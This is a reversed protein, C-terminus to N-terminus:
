PRSTTPSSGCPPGGPQKPRAPAAWPGTRARGLNVHAAAFDPRLRAAERFAAAAEDLRGCDLALLGLTNRPQALSPALALARRAADGAEEPRGLARLSEALNAHLRPSDPFRAAGDALLARAEDIRGSRAALMARRELLNVDDARDGAARRAPAEAEAPRGGVRPPGAGEGAEDHTM